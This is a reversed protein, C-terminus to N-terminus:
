YIKRFVKRKRFFLRFIVIIAVLFVISFVIFFSTLPAKSTNLAAYGTIKNSAIFFALFVFFSAFVIIFISVIKELLRLKKIPTYGKLAKKFYGVDGGHPFDHTKAIEAMKRSVYNIGLPGGVPIERKRGKGHAVMYHVKVGLFYFEHERGSERFEKAGFYRARAEFDKEEVAQM